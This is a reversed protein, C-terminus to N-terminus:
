PHHARSLDALAAGPLWALGPSPFGMGPTGVTMGEQTCVPRAATDTAASTAAQRGRCRGAPQPPRRDSRKRGPRGVAAIRRHERRRGFRRTRVGPALETVLVEASDQYHVHMHGHELREAHTMPRRYSQTGPHDLFYRADAACTDDIGAGLPCTDEHTLKRDVFQANCDPCPRLHRSVPLRRHPRKTM